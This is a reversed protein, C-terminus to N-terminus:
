ESGGGTVVARFRTNSTNGCIHKGLIYVRYNLQKQVQLPHWTGPVRRPSAKYICDYMAFVWEHKQVFNCNGM